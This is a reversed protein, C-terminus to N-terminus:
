ASDIRLATTLQELYSKDSNMTRVSLDVVFVGHVSVKKGKSDRYGAGDHIAFFSGNEKGLYILTHGPMYLPNGPRLSSLQSRRHEADGEFVVRNSSGFQEQAWADRPLFIGFSAYIDRVFRSCDRRNYLDGWGYREGLMKFALDLIARGTLDLDGVKVDESMRVLAKRFNLSGLRDRTPLSVTFCSFSGQVHLNESHVPRELPLMDGMQLSLGSSNMVFPDPEIEVRNGTALLFPSAKIFSLVSARKEAIAAYNTKIWGRYFPTQVFLWSKDKSRALLALPTGLSVATSQLMDNDIYEDCSILDTPLVRLNARRTVLGFRVAMDQNLIATANDVVDNRIEAPVKDGESTLLLRRFFTEPISDNISKRVEEFPLSSPFDEFNCAFSSKGADRARSIVERNFAEIEEKQMRVADPDEMIKCWYDSTQKEQSVGEPTVLHKEM